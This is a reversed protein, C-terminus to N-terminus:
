VCAPNLAGTLDGNDAIPSLSPAGNVNTRYNTLHRLNPGNALGTMINFIMAATIPSAAPPGGPATAADALSRLLREVGAGHDVLAMFDTATYCHARKFLNLDQDVQMCLLARDVWNLLLAPDFRTKILLSPIEKLALDQISEIGEEALRDCQWFSMGDIDAQLDSPAFLQGATETDIGGLRKVQQSVWRLFLDPVIGILFALGALYAGLGQAAGDAGASLSMLLMGLIFTVVLRVNIKWLVNSTLDALMWRRIMLSLSYFYAGLLAWTLPTLQAAAKAFLVSTSLPVTGSNLIQGLVGDIGTPLLASTWVLYLLLVNVTAPLFLAALSNRSEYELFRQQLQEDDLACLSLNAIVKANLVNGQLGRYAIIMVLPLTTFLALILMLVFAFLYVDGRSMGLALSAKAGQTSVLTVAYTATEHTIIILIGVFVFLAVILAVRPTPKPPTQMTADSSHYRYARPSGNAGQCRNGIVLTRVPHM